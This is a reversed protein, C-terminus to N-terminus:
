GLGAGNEDREGACAVRWADCKVPMRPKLLSCLLTLVIPSQPRSLSSLKM